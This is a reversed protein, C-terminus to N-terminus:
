KFTIKIKRSWFPNQSGKIAKLKMNYTGKQAGTDCLVNDYTNNSKIHMDDHRDESGDERYLYWYLYDPRERTSFTLAMQSDGKDTASVNRFFSNEEEIPETPVVTSPGSTPATSQPANTQFVLLSSFSSTSTKNGSKDACILEYYYTTSSQLGSVTYKHSTKYTTSVPFEMKDGAVTKLILRSVCDEDSKWSITVTKDTPNVVVGSIVPPTTDQFGPLGNTGHCLYCLSEDSYNHDPNNSSNNHCSFCNAQQWGPHSNTLLPANSHGDVSTSGDSPITIIPQNLSGPPITSGNIVTGSDANSSNGTDYAALPNTNAGSDSRSSTCGVSLLTALLVICFPLWPHERFRAFSKM